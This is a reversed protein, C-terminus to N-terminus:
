RINVPDHGGFVLDAVDPLTPGRLVPLAPGCLVPLATVCSTPETLGARLTLAGATTTVVVAGRAGVRWVGTGMHSEKRM